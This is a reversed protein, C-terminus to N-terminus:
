QDGPEQDQAKRGSFHFLLLTVPLTGGDGDVPLLEVLKGLCVLVLTLGLRHCVRGAPEVECPKYSMMMM